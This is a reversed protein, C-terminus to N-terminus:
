AYFGGNTSSNQRLLSKIRSQKVKAILCSLIKSLLQTKPTEEVTPRFSLLKLQWYAAKKIEKKLIYKEIKTLLLLKLLFIDLHHLPRFAKTIADYHQQNNRKRSINLM